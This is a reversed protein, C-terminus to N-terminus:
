ARKRRAAKRRPKRATTPARLQRKLLAVLDIVEGGAEDPATSSAEPLEVVDADRALKKRALALLRESEDDRLEDEDLSSRSKAEIAGQMRRVRRPDPKKPAAIGVSRASRLEDAFRLAEARLVGADAFIAVAYAKDRMVFHAIAARGSKEMADALVSYAKSQEGGPLMFWTREFFAPDISERPVFGTIEIDRSRRPALAELEEDSVVVFEDQAVEYGRVIEDAELPRNEEPCVYRRELATGDPSLMRMSVPSPRYASYLEIPVTVLGFSLSGSWVGRAASAAAAPESRRRHRPM